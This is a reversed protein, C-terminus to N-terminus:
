WSTTFLPERRGPDCAGNPHNSCDSCGFGCSAALDYLRSRERRPPSNLVRSRPPPVPLLGVAGSVVIMCGVFIVGASRLGISVAVARIGVVPVSIGFYAAVFLASITAGRQHAPAVRAVEAMSARFSMGQGAGAVLAGAVLLALSEALLSCDAM